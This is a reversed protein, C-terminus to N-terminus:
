FPIEDGEAGQIGLVDLIDRLTLVVDVQGTWTNHFRREDKTLKRKSPPMDPNKVELLYNLGMWGVCLDPCGDGVSSLILVKLGPIKRLEEVLPTQNTDTRGYKKM